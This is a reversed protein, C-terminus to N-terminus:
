WFIFYYFIIKLEYNYKIQLLPFIKPDHSVVLITMSTFSAFNLINKILNISMKSDLSSTPEDMLLISAKRFLARAITLRQLQGGSLKIGGHGIKQNIGNPSQLIIWWYFLM